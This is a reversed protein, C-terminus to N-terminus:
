KYWVAIDNIEYSINQLNKELVRGPGLIRLHRWSPNVGDLPIVVQQWRDMSLGTSFCKGALVFRLQTWAYRDNKKLGSARPFVWFSLYQAEPPAQGLALYVSDFRGPVDANTRQTVVISEKEGPTFKHFGDEVKTAPIRAFSANEGYAAAYGGGFRLSHKKLDKERIANKASTHDFKVQPLVDRQTVPPRTPEKAGKKVLRIVTLEPFSCSYRFINNEIQIAKTERQVKAALGAFPSKEPLFGKEVIMETAGNWPVIAIVEGEEPFPFRKTVVVTAVGPANYAAAANGFLQPKEGYKPYYQAALKHPTGDFLKAVQRLASLAPYETGFVSDYLRGGNSINELKVGSGGGSIWDVIERGTQRLYHLQYENGMHESGSASYRAIYLKEPDYAEIVPLLQRNESSWGLNCLELKKSEKAEFLPRISPPLETVNEALLYLRDGVKNIATIRAADFALVAKGNNRLQLINGFPQLVDSPIVIEVLQRHRLLIANYLRKGNIVAEFSQHYDFAEKDSGAVGLTLRLHGKFSRPILDDLFLALRQNPQLTQPWDEPKRIPITSRMSALRTFEGEALPATNTAPIGDFKGFGIPELENEGLGLIVGALPDAGGPLRTILGAGGIDYDDARSPTASNEAISYSPLYRYYVQLMLSCLSTGYVALDTKDKVRFSADGGPLPWEGGSNQAALLEKKLNENWTEWRKGRGKEAQFLAQTQYYWRYLPFKGSRKWQPPAVERLLKETRRAPASNGSNLLQLGLLGVPNMNDNAAFRKLNIGQSFGGKDAQHIKILAETALALAKDLGDLRIGANHAATLAQIHWGLLSLDCVPEGVVIEKFLPDELQEATPPAMPTNDYNLAFSGFSNQRSIMFKLQAELAHRLSLSGSVAYGEALAYTLIAHGFGSGAYEINPTNNLEVLFDCGRRINDAYKESQFNEGHSFFALLALASLAAADGTEFSEKGGWGGNKNQVSALYKLAREVASETDAGGGHRRLLRSRNAADTRGTFSAGVELGAPLTGTPLGSRIRNVGEFTKIGQETRALEGFRETATKDAISVNGSVQPSFDRMASETLKEANAPTLEANAAGGAALADPVAMEKIEPPAFDTVDVTIESVSAPEPAPNKLLLFAGLILINLLLAAAIEWPVRKLIKSKRIFKNM